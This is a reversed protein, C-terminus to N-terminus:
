VCAPIMVFRGLEPGGKGFLRRMTQRGDRSLFALNLPPVERSRSKHVLVKTVGYFPAVAFVRQSSFRSTASNRFRFSGFAVFSLGLDRDRASPCQRHGRRKDSGRGGRLRVVTKGM